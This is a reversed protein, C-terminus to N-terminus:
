SAPETLSRLTLAIHLTTGDPDRLKQESVREFFQDSGEVPLLKNETLSISASKLCDWVTAAIKKADAFSRDERSWIHIDTYAETGDICEALDPVDQGEGIEIYSGPWTKTQSPNIRPPNGILSQVDTDATLATVVAIQLELSPGLKSTM